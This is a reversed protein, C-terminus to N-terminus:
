PPSKNAKHIISLQERLADATPQEICDFLAILVTLRKEISDNDNIAEYHRLLELQELACKASEPRPAPIDGLWEHIERHVTSRPIDVICYHLERLQALELETYHRGQYFLHHRDIVNNKPTRNPKHHKYRRKKKSM